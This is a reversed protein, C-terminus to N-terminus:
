VNINHTLQMNLNSPKFVKIKNCTGTTVIALRADGTEKGMQLIRYYRNGKASKSQEGTSQCLGSCEVIHDLM